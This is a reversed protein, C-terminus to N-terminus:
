IIIRIMVKTSTGNAYIQCVKDPIGTNSHKGLFGCKDHNLAAWNFIYNHCQHIALGYENYLPREKCDVSREM